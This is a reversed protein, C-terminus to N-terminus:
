KNELYLLLSKTLAKVDERIAKRVLKLSELHIVALPYIM